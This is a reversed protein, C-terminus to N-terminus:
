YSFTFAFSLTYVLIKSVKFPGELLLDQGHEVSSFDVVITIKKYSSHNYNGLFHCIRYGKTRQEYRV